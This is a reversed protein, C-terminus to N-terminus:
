SHGRQHRCSDDNGARYEAHHHGPLCGAQIAVRVVPQHSNAPRNRDRALDRYDGDVVGAYRLQPTKGPRAREDRPGHICDRRSLRSGDGEIYEEGIRRVCGVVLCQGIRDPASLVNDQAGFQHVAADVARLSLPERRQRQQRCRRCCRSVDIDPRLGITGRALHQDFFAIIGSINHPSQGNFRKADAIANRNGGNLVIRVIDRDAGARNGDFRRRVDNGAGGAHPSRRAHRDVVGTRRARESTSSPLTGGVARRSLYTRTPAV